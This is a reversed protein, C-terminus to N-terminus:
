FYDRSLNSNIPCISYILIPVEKSLLSVMAFALMENGLFM